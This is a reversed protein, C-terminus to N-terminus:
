PLDYLFIRKLIGKKLYDRSSQTFLPWFCKHSIMPASDSGRLEISQKWGHQEIKPSHCFTHPSRVEKRGYVTLGYNLRTNTWGRVFVSGIGDDKWSRKDDWLLPLAARIEEGSPMRGKRAIQYSCPDCAMLSTIIDTEPHNGMALPYRLNSSSNPPPFNATAMQNDLPKRLLLAMVPAGSACLMCTGKYYDKQLDPKNFGPNFLTNKPTYGAVEPTQPIPNLRRHGLSNFSGLRLYQQQTSPPMEYNVSSINDEARSLSGSSIHRAHTGSSSRRHTTELATRLSDDLQQLSQSNSERIKKQLKETSNDPKEAKMLSAMAEILLNSDDDSEPREIKDPHLTEQNIKDVNELWKRFQESQGKLKATLAITKMNDEHDMIRSAVQLDVTPSSLLDSFNLRSNDNLVVEDKSVSLPPPIPVRALNEYSTQPLDTWVTSGDLRPNSREKPLLSSFCGKTQLIYTKGTDVDTYLFACHPSVAFVSLGM